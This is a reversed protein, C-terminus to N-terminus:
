NGLDTIDPYESDAFVDQLGEVLSEVWDANVTFIDDYLEERETQVYYRTGDETANGIHFIWESILIVNDERLQKTQLFLSVYPENLGYPVLDDVKYDFVIQSPQELSAWLAPLKVEDVLSQGKDDFRWDGNDYTMGVTKNETLFELKTLAKIDVNYYWLPYPPETVLRTMVQGWESAITFVQPFGEVRGYYGIGDPTSLGLLVPISRGDKLDLQIKIRPVDLGYPELDTPQSDLMRRSKPGSLILVVGGWRDSGVPLGDIADIHWYGDTGRFFVVEDGHDTIVIRTMDSMDVNYFWPPEDKIEVTERLQVFFVYGAMMVLSVVLIISTRISM